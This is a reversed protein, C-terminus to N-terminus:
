MEHVCRKKKKGHGNEDKGSSHMQWDELKHPSLDVKQLLIGLHAVM